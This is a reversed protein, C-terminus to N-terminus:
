VGTTIARLAVGFLFLTMIAYAWQANNSDDGRMYTFLGPLAVIAFVGYLFHVSRGPSASFFLLIVGLVAQIIFLIEGVALAGLYSGDVGYNRIARYMGWLGALLFFLWTTNSLVRHLTLITNM